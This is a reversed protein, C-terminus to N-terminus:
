LSGIQDVLQLDNLGKFTDSQSLWGSFTVFLQWTASTKRPPKNEFIM